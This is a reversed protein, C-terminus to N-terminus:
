SKKKLFHNDFLTLLYPFSLKFLIVFLFTWSFIKIFLSIFIKPEHKKLNIIEANQCYVFCLEYWIALYEELTKRKRIIKSEMRGYLALVRAIICLKKYIKKDGPLSKVDYFGGSFTLSHIFLLQNDLHLFM